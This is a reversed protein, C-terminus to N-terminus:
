LGHRGSTCRVYLFLEEREKTTLRHEHKVETHLPTEPIDHLVLTNLVVLLIFAGSVYLLVNLFRKKLREPRFCTSETPVSSGLPSKASLENKEPDMFSTSCHCSDDPSKNDETIGSEKKPGFPGILM